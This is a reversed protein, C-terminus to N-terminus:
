QRAKVAQDVLVNQLHYGQEVISCHMIRCVCDYFEKYVTQSVFHKRFGGNLGNISSAHTQCVRSAVGLQNLCM